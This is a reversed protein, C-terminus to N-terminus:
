QESAVEGRYGQYIGNRMSSLELGNKGSISNIQVIFPGSNGVYTGYLAKRVIEINGLHTINSDDFNSLVSVHDCNLFMDFTFANLYVNEIKFIISKDAVVLLLFATPDSRNETLTLYLKEFERRKIELTEKERKVEDTM